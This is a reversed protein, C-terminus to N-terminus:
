GNEVTKEHKNRRFFLAYRGFIYANGGFFLSNRGFFLPYIYM